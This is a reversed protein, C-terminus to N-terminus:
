RPRQRVELPRGQGPRPLQGQLQPPPENGCVLGAQGPADLGQLLGGDPEVGPLVLCDPGVAGEDPLVLALQPGALGDELLHVDQVGEQIPVALPEVVGEDDKEAPVPPVGVDVQQVHAEDHQAPDGEGPPQLEGQIGHLTGPGEHEGILEVGM